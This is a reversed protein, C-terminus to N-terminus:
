EVDAFGRDALFLVEVAGPLVGVIADLLPAYTSYAVASSGHELVKWVIPIARGRYILAIRILCYRNWLMSTDLALVLRPQSWTSLAYRILREDLQPENVQENSLWRSFRRQTSQAYSARSQVYDGWATLSIQGSAFVGVVMWVLPYLHRQDQWRCQQGLLQRLAEYLRPTSEM